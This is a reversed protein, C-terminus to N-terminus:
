LKSRNFSIMEALLQNKVVEVAREYNASGRPLHANTQEVFREAHWYVDCVINPVASHYRIDHFYSYGCEATRM